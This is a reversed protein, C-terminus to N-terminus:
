GRGHSGDARACQAGERDQQGERQQQRGALAVRGSGIGGGCGRGPGGGHGLGVLVGAGLRVLDDDLVEGQIQREIKVGAGQRAGGGVAQLPLVRRRRHQRQVRAVQR